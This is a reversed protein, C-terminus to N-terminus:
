FAGGTSGLLQLSLPLLEADKEGLVNGGSNDIQLDIAEGVGHIAM